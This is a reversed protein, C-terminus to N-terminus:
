RTLDIMYGVKLEIASNNSKAFYDAHTSGYINGLGFYYRGEVLFRGVATALEMGIGGAIGYDLTNEVPMDYQKITKNGRDAMNANELTFNTETSESLMYGFQPGLNLFFQAGRRESGWALHAMVPVQIYNITRTYKDQVNTNPNIVPKSNIDVINENWGLQNYNVEAYVSCITKFYKESTYRMSFGLSPGMHYGQTVKPTFGVNSLTYGANFGVAFDNRHEGVQAKAALTLCLFLTLCICRYINILSKM